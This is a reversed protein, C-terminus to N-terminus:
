SYLQEPMKNFDKQPCMNENGKPLCRSISHSPWVNSTKNQKKKPQVVPCRSSEQGCISDTGEASFAHLRLWQVM